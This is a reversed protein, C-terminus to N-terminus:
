PHTHGEGGELPDSPVPSLSDAHALSKHPTLVPSLGRQEGKRGGLSVRLFSILVWKYFWATGLPLLHLRRPPPAAPLGSRKNQLRKLSRKKRRRKRMRTM